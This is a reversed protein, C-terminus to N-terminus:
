CCYPVREPVTGKKTQVAVEFMYDWAKQVLLHARRETGSSYSQIAFELVNVEDIVSFTV